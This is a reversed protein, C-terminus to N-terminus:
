TDLIAGAAGGKAQEDQGRQEPMLMGIQAGVLEQGVGQLRPAPPGEPHGSRGWRRWLSTSPRSRQRRTLLLAQRQCRNRM